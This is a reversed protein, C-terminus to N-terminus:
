QQNKDYVHPMQNSCKLKRKQQIPVYTENIIGYVQSKMKKM